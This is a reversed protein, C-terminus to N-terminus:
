FAENATVYFGSSGRGLGFDIRITNGESSVRCRLGGGVSPKFGAASLAGLRGAVQGLGAFAVASFRGSLPLRAEAQFGAFVRDRYRGTLYGRMLSDGGMKPMAMFPVDGSVAELKMQFGLVASAAFPLYSRLDAKFRSFRYDGGFFVASIQWFRGRRPVFVNDRDDTKAIIGLGALTGGQSGLIDGSALPGEPAFALFRYNEIVGMLGAYIQRGPFLRRQVQFEALLQRPTILEGAAELTENGLGFFENPFRSWELSGTLVWDERGLYIEPKMQLTFQDNQTIVASFQISTPRPQKGESAPRYALIGGIGGALRTEPTYYALPMVLITRKAATPKTDEAARLSLPLVAALVAWALIPASVAKM